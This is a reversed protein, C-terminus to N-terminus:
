VIHRILIGDLSDISLADRLGVMHCHTYVCDLTAMSKVIRDSCTDHLNVRFYYAKFFDEATVSSHFSLIYHIRKHCLIVKPVRFVLLM